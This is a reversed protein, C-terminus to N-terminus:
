FINSQDGDPGTRGQDGSPNKLKELAFLELALGKEYEANGHEVKWLCHAAMRWHFFPRLMSLRSILDPQGYGKLFLDHQKQSLPGEGYLAQMAPSLFTALDECPDGIGPCQWDIFTAGRETIIANAPVFDGHLFVPDVPSLEPAPFDIQCLRFSLDSTCDSLIKLTATKLAEVGMEINRMSSPLPHEHLQRLQRGLAHVDTLASEGDVYQYVLCLGAETELMTIPEPAIGSDSLFQLAQMEAGSDNPFLYSAADEKFLKCVM